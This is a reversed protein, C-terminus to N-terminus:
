SVTWAMKRTFMTSQSSPNRHLFNQIGGGKPHHSYFVTLDGPIRQM